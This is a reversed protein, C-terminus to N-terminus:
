EAELFGKITEAPISFLPHDFIAKLVELGGAELASQLRNKLTSNNKIEDHIAKEAQQNTKQNNKILQYLLNQVEGQAKALNEQYTDNTQVQNQQTVQNDDGLVVQNNDGPATDPTDFNPKIFDGFDGDAFSEKENDPKRLPNPNQKTPLRMYVYECRVGNFMTDNTIRWDEIYAGTLTAGTFDTANLQSQVLKAGSLNADKLNAESLDAAIFSADTLIANQLNVGRLDQRDFNKDNGEGTILLQRLQVNQLYTKDSRVFNLSKTKFFRTRTLTANRLDTSKLTAETFDADTLDANYFNTGGTAAFDIAVNWILSYKEDGNMARWAIYSSFLVLAVAVVVTGAIVGLGAGARALAVAGAGAGAGVIAGVIAGAGAVAVAGVIAGAVAVAVAEVIARALALALALVIAGIIARAGVTAVAGVTAGARVSTELVSGIFFSAGIVAAVAGPRALAVAVFGVLVGAEAGDTVEAGAGFLAGVSAFLFGSFAAIIWSICTLIAVWRKQLGAKAYSFNAGQLCADTFNAGRIDAHSFNAGELNQGKFSRGRLNQNSFDQNIM